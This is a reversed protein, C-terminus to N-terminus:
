SWMWFTVLSAARKPSGAVVQRSFFRMLIRSIIWSNFGDQAGGGTDGGVVGEEVGFGCVVVINVVKWLIVFFEM